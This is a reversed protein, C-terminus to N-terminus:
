VEKLKALELDLICRTCKKFQNGRAWCFEPHAIFNEAKIREIVEREHKKILALIANTIKPDALNRSYLITEIEERMNIKSTMEKEQLPQNM